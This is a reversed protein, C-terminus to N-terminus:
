SVEPESPQPSRSRPPRARGPLAGWSSLRAIYRRVAQQALAGDGSVVAEVIESHRADLWARDPEDIRRVGHELCLEIVVRLFLEAVPNGSLRAIEVHINPLDAPEGGSALRGAALVARLRVAGERDITTALRGVAAIEVALWVEFLDDSRVGRYDLFMRASGLVADVDPATVVLGGGPGPRRRAVGEAELLRVAERLVSRGVGLRATLEAESGLVTGVAWGSDIVMEEIRRATRAGLSRREARDPVQNRHLYEREEPPNM